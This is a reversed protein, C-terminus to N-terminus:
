ARRAASSAGRKTGTKSKSKQVEAVSQTFMEHIQTWNKSISSRKNAPTWDVGGKSITLRGLLGDDQQVRFTVDSNDIERPPMEILIRHKAM